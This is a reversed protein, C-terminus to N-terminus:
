HQSFHVQICQEGREAILQLLTLGAWSHVHGAATAGPLMTQCTPHLGSHGQPGWFHPDHAHYGGRAEGGEGEAASPWVFLPQKRPRWPIIPCNLTVRALAIAALRPSTVQVPLGSAQQCGPM